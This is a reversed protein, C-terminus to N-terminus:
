NTKMLRKVAIGEKNIIKVFYIGSPLHQVDIVTQQQTNFRNILVKGNLDMVDITSSGERTTIVVQANAPNPYITIQEISGAEKIGTSWPWWFNGLSDFKMLLLNNQWDYQLRNIKSTLLYGGDLTKIMCIHGSAHADYSLVKHLYNLNAPTATFRYQISNSQTNYKILELMQDSNTYVILLNNDALPAILPAEAYILYQSFTYFSQGITDLPYITGNVEKTLQLYIVGFNDKNQNITWLENGIIASDHDWRATTFNATLSSDYLLFTACSYIGGINSPSIYKTSDFDGNTDFHLIYNFYKGTHTGAYECGFLTFSSDKNQFAGFPTFWTIYGPNPAVIYTKTFCNQAQCWTLSSLLLTVFLYKM